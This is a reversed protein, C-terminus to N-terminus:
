AAKFADEEADHTAGNAAATAAKPRRYVGPAGPSGATPSDLVNDSLENLVAHPDGTAIGALATDPSPAPSIHAALSPAAIPPEPSATSGAGDNPPAKATVAADRQSKSELGGRM